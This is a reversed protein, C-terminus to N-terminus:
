LRVPPSWPPVVVASGIMPIPASVTKDPDQYTWSQDPIIKGAADYTRGGSADVEIRAGVPSTRIM